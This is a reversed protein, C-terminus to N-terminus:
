KRYLVIGAKFTGKANTFTGSLRDPSTRTLEVRSGPLTTVFVRREDVKIKPGPGFKAEDTISWGGVASGDSKVTVIVLTRNPGESGPSREIRGEWVGRSWHDPVYQTDDLDGLAVIRKMRQIRQPATENPVRDFYSRAKEIREYVTMRTLSAPKSQDEHRVQAGPILVIEAGGLSGYVFPEQRNATVKLVEDRVRGLALRVDLGPTALHRVLAATYPSNLGEGDSATSGAKAAYAILTDRTEVSIEALGRGFSRTPITRKMTRVFPNERCADLIILRLRKVQGTIQSVRELSVTEDEVDIDRNLVADVPVLYNLGNVEIGHGAYFVVAMDADRAVESFDSLARRMAVLDLDNKRQVIKFGAAKLMVEVALADRSPNPLRGVKAYAANGIVLAVRTEALGPSAAILLVFLAFLFQM